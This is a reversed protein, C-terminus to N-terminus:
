QTMTLCFSPPQLHIPQFQLPPPPLIIIFVYTNCGMEKLLQFDGIAPEDSNKINSGNKDIFADYPGDIKGNGNDDVEMWDRLTGQGPDGGVKAYSYVVGKIFYSNGNVKLQWGGAENKGGARRFKKEQRDRGASIRAQGSGHVRVPHSHLISTLL